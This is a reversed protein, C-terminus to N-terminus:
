IEEGLVAYMMTACATKIQKDRPRRQARITTYYAPWTAFKSNESFHPPLGDAIRLRAASQDWLTWYLLYIVWVWVSNGCTRCWDVIVCYSSDGISLYTDQWACFGFEHM